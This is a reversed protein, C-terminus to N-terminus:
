LFIEMLAKLGIGIGTTVGKELAIGVIKGLAKKAIDIFPGDEKAKGLVEKKQKETSTADLLIALDDITISVVESNFSTDAFRGKKKLISDLYKRLQMDEVAFQIVDKSGKKLNM